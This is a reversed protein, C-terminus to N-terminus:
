KKILESNNQNKYAEGRNSLVERWLIESLCESSCVKFTRGIVKPFEEFMGKGCANCFIKQKSYFSM